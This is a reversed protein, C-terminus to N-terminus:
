DQRLARMPSVEAARRAPWWCAAAAVLLLTLPIGIYLPGFGMACARLAATKMDGLRVLTLLPGALPVAVMMTILVRTDGEAM